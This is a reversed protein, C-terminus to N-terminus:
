ENRAEPRSVWMGLSTPTTRGSPPNAHSDPIHGSHTRFTDPIHGTQAHFQGAIRGTHTPARVAPCVAEESLTDSLMVAGARVQRGQRHVATAKCRHRTPLARSVSDSKVRGADDADENLKDVLEELTLPGSQLAEAIRKSLAVTYGQEDVRILRGDQWTTTVVFKGLSASNNYKRYTLIAGQEGASELSRSLNHWFVSGFPYRPDETKTVHALSLTPVGISSLAAHYQAPAEPKLVDAAGCAIPISDIVIYDIDRAQVVARLAEQQQWIAGRPGTWDSSTPRTSSTSDATKV